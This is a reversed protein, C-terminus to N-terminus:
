GLKVYGTEQIWYDGLAKAAETRALGKINVQKLVSEFEDPTLITKSKLGANQPTRTM